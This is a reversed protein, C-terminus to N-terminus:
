WFHALSHIAFKKLSDSMRENIPLFRAIRESFRNAVEWGLYVQLKRLPHNRGSEPPNSNSGPIAAGVTKFREAM